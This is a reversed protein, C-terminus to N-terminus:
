ATPESGLCGRNRASTTVSRAPKRWPYIGLKGSGRQSFKPMTEYKLFDLFEKLSKIPILPYTVEDDMDTYDTKYIRPPKRYYKRFRGYTNYRLLIFWHYRLFIPAGFTIIGALENNLEKALWFGFNGGFSNGIIFVKQSIKKLKFYAEKVSATWDKPCTKILDDPDTGHGAVLPVSVNFNKQLLFDALEKFQNPTSTFGHIMLVGIKSNKDVFIPEGGKMM